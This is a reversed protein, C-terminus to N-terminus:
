ALRAASAVACGDADAPSQAIIVCPLPLGAVNAAHSLSSLGGAQISVPPLEGLEISQALMVPLGEVKAGDACVCACDSTVFRTVSRAAFAGVDREIVAEHLYGPGDSHVTRPPPQREGPRVERWARVSVAGPSAREALITIRGERHNMVWPGKRLREQAHAATPVLGVCLALGLVGCVPARRLPHLDLARPGM